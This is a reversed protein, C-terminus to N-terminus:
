QKLGIQKDYDKGPTALNIRGPLTSRTFNYRAAVSKGAKRTSRLRKAPKRLVYKRKIPTSM